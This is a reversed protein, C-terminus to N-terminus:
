RRSNEGMDPGAQYIERVVRIYLNYSVIDLCAIIQFSFSV